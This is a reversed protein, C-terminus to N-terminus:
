EPEPEPPLESEHVRRLARTSELTVQQDHGARRHWRVEAGTGDPTVSVVRGVTDDSDRLTVSEGRRLLEEMVYEEVNNRTHLAPALSGQMPCNREARTLGDRVMQATMLRDAAVTADGDAAGFTDIRDHVACWGSRVATRPRQEIVSNMNPVGSARPRVTDGIVM